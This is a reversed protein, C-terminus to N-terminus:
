CAIFVELKVANTGPFVLLSELDNLAKLTSAGDDDTTIGDHVAGLMFSKGAELLVSTSADATGNEALSVQLSLTVSNSTDLNTVRVYKVNDLDLAGDAADVSSRFTALTTDVNAPCTVIRNLVETVSGITSVNETGRDTGNLVVQEKITVTLVAM